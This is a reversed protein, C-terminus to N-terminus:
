LSLVEKVMVLETIVKNIFFDLNWVIILILLASFIFFLVKESSWWVRYWIKKPLGLKLSIKWIKIIEWWEKSFADWIMHFIYAFGCAILTYELIGPVLLTPSFVILILYLIKKIYSNYFILSVMSLAILIILTISLVNVELYVYSLILLLWLCIIGEIRHTFGRHKVFLRVIAFGIKLYWVKNIWAKNSDMDPLITFMLIFPIAIIPFSQIMDSYFKIFENNYFFEKWIFSSGYLATLTFIQHTKREM